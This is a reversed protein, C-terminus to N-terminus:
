GKHSINNFVLDNSCWYSRDHLYQNMELSVVLVVSLIPFYSSYRCKFGLEYALSLILLLHINCYLNKPVSNGSDMAMLLVRRLLRQSHKLLERVNSGSQRKSIRWGGREFKQHWSRSRNRQVYLISGAWHMRGSMSHDKKQTKGLNAPM